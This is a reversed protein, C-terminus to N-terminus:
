QENENRTLSAGNWQNARVSLNQWAANGLNKFPLNIGTPFFVFSAFLEVMRGSSSCLSTTLLERYTFSHM